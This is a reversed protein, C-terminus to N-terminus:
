FTIQEIGENLDDVSVADAIAYIHLTHVLDERLGKERRILEDAMDVSHEVTVEKPVKLGKNNFIAYDFREKERLNMPFECPVRLGGRAGVQFTQIVLFRFWLCAVGVLSLGRTGPGVELSPSFTCRTCAQGLETLSALCNWFPRFM